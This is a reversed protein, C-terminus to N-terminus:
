PEMDRVTRTLFEVTETLSVMDTRLSKAEALITALDRCVQSVSIFTAPLVWLDQAALHYMLVVNDPPQAAEGDIVDVVARRESALFIVIDGVAPTM